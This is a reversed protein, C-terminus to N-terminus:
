RISFVKLEANAKVLLLVKVEEKDPNFTCTVILRATSIMELESKSPSFSMGWM